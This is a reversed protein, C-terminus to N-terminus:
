KQEKPLIEEYYVKLAEPLNILEQLVEIRGRIKDSIDYDYNKGGKYNFILAEQNMELITKFYDEFHKWAPNKLILNVPEKHAALNRFPKFKETRVM